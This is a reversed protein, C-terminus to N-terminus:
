AFLAMALPLLLLVWTGALGDMGRGGCVRM